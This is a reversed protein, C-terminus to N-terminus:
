ADQEARHFVAWSLGLMLMMFGALAFWHHSAVSSREQYGFVTETLQALHYTPM